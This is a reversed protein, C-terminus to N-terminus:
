VYLDDKEVSKPKALRAILPILSFSVLTGFVGVAIAVWGGTLAAKVHQTASMAVVVPIYMASWFLVGKESEKDTLDRKRMWEQLYIFLIMAFGVGGVNGDMNIWGGIFEGFLQGLLFCIGLLAVGYIKM